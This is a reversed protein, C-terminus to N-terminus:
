KLDPSYVTASKKWGTAYAYEFFLVFLLVFLVDCKKSAHCTKNVFMQFRVATKTSPYTTKSRLKFPVPWNKSFDIKKWDEFFFFEGMPLFKQLVLKNTTSM